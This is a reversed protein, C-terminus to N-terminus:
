ANRKFNKIATNLGNIIATRVLIGPEWKDLDYTQVYWRLISGVTNCEKPPNKPPM